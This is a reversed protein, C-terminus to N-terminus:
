WAWGPLLEEETGGCVEAVRQGQQTTVGEILSPAKSSLVMDQESLHLM